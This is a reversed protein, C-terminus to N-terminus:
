VIRTSRIQTQSPTCGFRQRYRRSFDSMHVFGWRAAIVAIPSM